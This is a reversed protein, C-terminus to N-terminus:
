LQANGMASLTGLGAVTGLRRCISCYLRALLESATQFAPSVGHFVEPLMLWNNPKIENGVVSHISKSGYNHFVDVHSFSTSQRGKNQVM